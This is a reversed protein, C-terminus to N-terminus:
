NRKWPPLKTVVPIDVYPIYLEVNAPFIVTKIYKPNNELLIDMLKEAGLKPYVRLAILDLTDGQQTRYIM